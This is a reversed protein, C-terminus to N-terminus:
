TVDNLWMSVVVLVVRGRGRRAQAVFRNLTAASPDTGPEYWVKDLTPREAYRGEELPASCAM